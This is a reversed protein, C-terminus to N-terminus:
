LIAADGATPKAKGITGSNPLCTAEFEVTNTKVNDADTLQARCRAVDVTSSTGGCGYTFIIPSDQEAAYTKPSFSCTNGQPCEIIELTLVVPFFPFGEFNVAVTTSGPRQITVDPISTIKFPKCVTGKAQLRFGKEVGKMAANVFVPDQLAAADGPNTHFAVELVMAPMEAQNNEGYKGSPLAQNAVSFTKYSDQAHILEKMGCLVNNALALDEPRNKAVFATTGSATPGAANTHLNFLVDASIHNAFLPRSRIDEDYQWLNPDRDPLPRSLSHWIEPNDPYAVELYERGDM